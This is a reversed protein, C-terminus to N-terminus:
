KEVKENKVMAVSITSIKSALFDLKEGKKRTAREKKEEFYLYTLM